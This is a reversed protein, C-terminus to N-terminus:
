LSFRDCLSLDKYDPSKYSITYVQSLTGILLIPISFRLKYVSKIFTISSIQTEICSM